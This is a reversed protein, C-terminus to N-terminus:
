DLRLANGDVGIIQGSIRDAAEENLDAIAVSAGLSAMVSAIGTGIGSGAGTVIAHKGTLDGLM